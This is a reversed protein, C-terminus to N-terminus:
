LERAEARLRGNQEVLVGCPLEADHEFIITWDERLARPFVKKKTALTRLPELDYGMIWPYPVHSATPVLDAPFAITGRGDNLLVMQMYPTHGPVVEVRMWPFLDTDGEITHLCGAAALPEFRNTLYSARIRENDQRALELEGKQVIYRAAPFAPRFREGDPETAGGAHDFHLHTLVVTDIQDPTLGAPKLLAAADLPTIGYITQSKADWGSGAGTDVLVRQKGDDILLLNMALEIRNRDDASRVRSWLPKPVVGFMAGGDLLVRGADLLHIRLDGRESVIM